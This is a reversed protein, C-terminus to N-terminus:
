KLELRHFNNMKMMIQQTEKTKPMLRLYIKKSPLLNQIKPSKSTLNLYNKKFKRIKKNNPKVRSNGTITKNEDM